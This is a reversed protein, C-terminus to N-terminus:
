DFLPFDILKNFPTPPSPPRGTANGLYITGLVEAMWWRRRVADKKKM